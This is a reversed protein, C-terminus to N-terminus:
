EAVEPLPKLHRMASPSVGCGRATTGWGCHRCALAGVVMSMGSTLLALADVAGGCHPCVYGGSASPSTTAPTM